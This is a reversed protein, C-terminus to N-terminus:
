AQSSPAIGSIGGGLACATSAASRSLLTSSISRATKGTAIRAGAAGIAAVILKGVGVARGVDTDCGTVDGAVGVASLASAGVRGAATSSGLVVALAVIPPAGLVAVGAGGRAGSSALEVGRGVSAGVLMAVRVAAAVLVAVTAM